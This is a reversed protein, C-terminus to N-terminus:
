TTRRVGYEYYLRIGLDDFSQHEHHCLGAIEYEVRGAPTARRCVHCLLPTAPPHGNIGTPYRHGYCTLPKKGTLEWVVLKLVFDRPGCAANDVARGQMPCRADDGVTVIQVGNEVLM